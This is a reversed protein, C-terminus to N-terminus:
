VAVMDFGPRVHRISRGVYGLPHVTFSIGDVGSGPHGDM